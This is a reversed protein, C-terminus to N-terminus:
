RCSAPLYRAAVTTLADQGCRWTLSKGANAPASLDAPRGDIMPTLSLRNKAGPFSQEDYEILIAGTRDSSMRRVNKTSGPAAGYLQCADPGCSLDPARQEYAEAIRARLASGMRIGESVKARKTYDQYAPLAIAALIGIVFISGFAAVVVIVATSGKAGPYKEDLRESSTCVYVVFEVLAALAPIYTWCFVLYLAGQWYKGLYFKHAGIGGLFFTLLLLAAKSVPTRQRVGCAPCIEAKAHIAAGCTACNKQPANATSAAPLAPARTAPSTATTM